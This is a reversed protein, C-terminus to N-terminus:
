RISIFTSMMTPLVRGSIIMVMRMQMAASRSRRLLYATEEEWSFAAYEPFSTLSCGMIRRRVDKTYEDTRYFGHEPPNKMQGEDGCNTRVIGDKYPMGRMIGM